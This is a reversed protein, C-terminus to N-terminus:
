KVCKTVLDFDIQCKKCVVITKNETYYAICPSKEGDIVAERIETNQCFIGVEVIHVIYLM